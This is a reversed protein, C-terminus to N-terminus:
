KQNYLSSPKTVDAMAKLGLHGFRQALEDLVAQPNLQQNALLVLCHFWLDAVEHVIQQSNGAKVALLVEISEEAVKRLIADTGGAYLSAVYSNTPAAEKRQELVEAIRTLIDTV